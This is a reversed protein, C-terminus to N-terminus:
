SPFSPWPTPKKDPPLLPEGKGTEQDEPCLQHRKLPWSLDSGSGVACGEGAGQRSSRCEPGSCGSAVKAEPPTVQQFLSKRRGGWSQPGGMLGCFAQNGIPAPRSQPLRTGSRNSECEGVQTEGSKQSLGWERYGSTQSTCPLPLTWVGRKGRPDQPAAASLGSRRRLIIVKHPLSPRTACEPDGDGLSSAAMWTRRWSPRWAGGSGPLSAPALRTRLRAPGGGGKGDRGPSTPM